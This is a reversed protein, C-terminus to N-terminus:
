PDFVDEATSLDLKLVEAIAQLRKVKPLDLGMLALERVLEAVDDDLDAAQAEARGARLGVALAVGVALADRATTHQELTLLLRTAKPGLNKMEGQLRLIEKTRKREDPHRALAAIVLEILADLDAM